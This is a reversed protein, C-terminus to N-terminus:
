KSEYGYTFVKEAQKTIESIGERLQTAPYYLSGGAGLQNNLKKWDDLPMTITVAFEQEM